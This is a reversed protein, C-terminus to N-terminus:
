QDSFDHLKFTTKYWESVLVISKTNKYKYNRNNRIIKAVNFFIAKFSIKRSIKLDEEYMKEIM